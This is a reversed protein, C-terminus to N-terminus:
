FVLLILFIQCHRQLHGQFLLLVLPLLRLKYAKKLWYLRYHSQTLLHGVLLWAVLELLRELLRLRAVLCYGAQTSVLVLPLRLYHL